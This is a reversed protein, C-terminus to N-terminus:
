LLCQVPLTGCTALSFTCNANILTINLLKIMFIIHKHFGQSYGVLGLYISSLSVNNV